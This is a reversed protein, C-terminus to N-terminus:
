CYVRNPYRVLRRVVSLIDPLNRLHALDAATFGIIQKLDDMDTQLSGHQEKSLQMGECILQTQENHHDSQHSLMTQQASMSVHSYQGLSM